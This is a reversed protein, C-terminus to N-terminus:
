YINGILIVWFVLMISTNAFLIISIIWETVQKILLAERM